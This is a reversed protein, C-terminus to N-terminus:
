IHHKLHLPTIRVQNLLVLTNNKKKFFLSKREFFEIPKKVLLPNNTELHRILKSPKM